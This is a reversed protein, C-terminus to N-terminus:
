ATEPNSARAKARLGDIFPGLNSWVTKAVVQTIVGIDMFDFMIMKASGNWVPAWAQGQRLSVVGLCLGLVYDFDADSMAALSETLPGVASAIASFDMEPSDDDGGRRMKDIEIFVPLIKPLIPAIKRSLHLQQFANLKGVRYTQGDIEVELM